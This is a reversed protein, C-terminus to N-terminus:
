WEMPRGDPGIKPHLDDIGERRLAQFLNSWEDTWLRSEVPTSDERSFARWGAEKLEPRELLADNRTLIVWRSTMELKREPPAYDIIFMRWGRERALRRMVMRLNVYRNTVNVIIAGDPRIHKEYIDFAETTLLHVPIADGSFADLVLVDFDQLESKAAERELSLRADGEVVEVHAHMYNRANHLYAFKNEALEIINPDIDYCRVQDGPRAYAIVTGTGLGVVGMRLPRWNAARLAATWRAMGGISGVAFFSPVPPPPAMAQMALMARGIGSNAGYYTTAAGQLGFAKFQAGHIIQGHSLEMYESDRGVDVWSVKLVGYFNRERLALRREQEEGNVVRVNSVLDTEGKQLMIVAGLIALVATLWELRRAGAFWRSERDLMWSAMLLGAAAFLGVYEEWYDSFLRPAIVGVFVGGLAGGLAIALYFGTLRSPPPRLRYTEGHCAVGCVFLLAVHVSVILPLHPDNTGVRSATLMWISAMVLGGWLPRVYWRPRDFAIIFTLLYVGLPLVWLFPAPAIDQTIRSTVAMLLISACMPLLVWLWSRLVLGGDIAAGAEEGTTEQIEANRRKSTEANGRKWVGIACWACAVAYAGFGVSWAIAQARRTLWPEVVFPYAVLALLSGVNSLAYLRWISSSGKPAEEDKAEEAREKGRRKKRRREKTEASRLENANRRKPTEANRRKDLTEASGAQWAQILPGTSALVLYPLGLTAGLLMLIRGIPEVAEDPKWSANPIVPLFIMAAALVALHTAVQARRPLRMVVLHAYAYGGLLAAQFFLMCTTWVGPGGGFWPLIWRGIMPQVLFLLFAGLFIAIASRIM